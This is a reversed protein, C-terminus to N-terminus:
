EQSSKQSMTQFIKTLDIGIDSVPFFRNVSIVEYALQYVMFYNGAFVEDFISENMLKGNYFTNSFLDLMLKYFQDPDVSDSLKSLALPIARALDIESDMIKKMDKGSKLGGVAEGIVPLLLKGVRTQLNFGKVGSFKQIIFEKEGILKKVQEVAM